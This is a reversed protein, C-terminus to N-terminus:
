ADIKYGYCNYDWQRKFGLSEATKISGMNADTCDWYPVARERLTRAICEATVAQALGKNRYPEFTEVGLAFSQGTRFSVYCISAITNKHVACYAFGDHMFVRVSHWFKEIEEVIHVSNDHTSSLLKKDVPVIAFDPTIPKAKPPTKHTYTYVRQVWSSINKDAFLQRITVDWKKHTGSVEFHSYGRQRMGPTLEDEIFPVLTNNFAHNAEDGMLYFGAIGQSWVLASQPDDVDDVYVWGPNNGAIVAQAELNTHKEIMHAIRLFNRKSLEHLM